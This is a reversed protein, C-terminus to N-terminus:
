GCVWGGGSPWRLRWAKRCQGRVAGADRGPGSTVRDGGAGRERDAGRWHGARREHGTVPEPLWGAAPRVAGTEALLGRAAPRQGPDKALCRGILSRLEAPVHDLSAQAHVVRYVLAPTSGAGFPGQGTAAFALVAGLSFIDSAPGVPRVEAQEPSM